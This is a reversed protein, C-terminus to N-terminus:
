AKRPLAAAERALLTIHEWDGRELTDTPVLWSGGVCVVNKLALFEPANAPTIGGTPCFRVEAFPGQWAKLMNIGGAQLAPFFKLENFGDQQAQMIESSTSVGPLLPLRAERCAEGVSSTYGPSVAFRAGAAAAARADAANRVTGAGVIAEPVSKAIAEIAGLGQPTRLTVELVRIGGAVLAKAMSVAHNVDRLVIVPIVPADQMISLATLQEAM